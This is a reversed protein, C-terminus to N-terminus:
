VRLDVLKRAAAKRGEWGSSHLRAPRQGAVVIPSGTGDISLPISMVM